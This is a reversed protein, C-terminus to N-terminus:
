PLWKNGSNKRQSNKIMQKIFLVTGILHFIIARDHDGNKNFFLGILLFIYGVITYM